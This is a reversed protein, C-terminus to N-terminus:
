STFINKVMKPLEHKKNQKLFGDSYSNQSLQICGRNKLTGKFIIRGDDKLSDGRKM